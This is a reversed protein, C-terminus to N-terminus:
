AVELDQHVPIVAVFPKVKMEEMILQFVFISSLFCCFKAKVGTSAKGSKM